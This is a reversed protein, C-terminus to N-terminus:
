VSCITPLTLHTYSVAYWKTIVTPSLVKLMRGLNAGMSWMAANQPYWHLSQQILHQCQAVLEQKQTEDDGTCELCEDIASDALHYYVVSLLIPLMSEQTVASSTNTTTSQQKGGFSQLPVITNNDMYPKLVATLIEQLEDVDGEGNAQAVVSDVYNRYHEWATDAAEAIAATTKKDTSLKARKAAPSDSM